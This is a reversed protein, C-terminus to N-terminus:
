AVEVEPYLLRAGVEKRSQNMNRKFDNLEREAAQMEEPDNTTYEELWSRMLAMTPTENRRSVRAHTKIGEDIIREIIQEPTAQLQAAMRQIVQGRLSDETIHILVDFPM